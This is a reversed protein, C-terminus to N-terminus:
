YWDDEYYHDDEDEYDDEYYEDDREEREWTYYNNSNAELTKNNDDINKILVNVGQYQNCEGTISSIEAEYKEGNDMRKAIKEATEKPIYGLQRSSDICVKIANSDHKNYPERELILKQGIYLEKILAQRNNFTIGVVKTYFQINNNGFMRM